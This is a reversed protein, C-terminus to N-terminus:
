RGATVIVHDRFVIDTRDGDPERLSVRVLQYRADFALRISQLARALAETRPKLSMDLPRARLIELEFLPTLRDLDAELVARLTEFVKGMGPESSLDFAQASSMGPMKLTATAGELVLDSESPPDTHWVLRGGRRYHLQGTTVLVDQLSKLHKTQEFHASVSVTRQLAERLPALEAPLTSQAPTLGLLVPLLVPLLDM